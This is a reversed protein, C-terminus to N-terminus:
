PQKVLGTTTWLYDCKKDAAANTNYASIKDNMEDVEAQAIIYNGALHDLCGYIQSNAPDYSGFLGGNAGTATLSGGKTYCAVAIGSYLVGAIGGVYNAGEVTCNIAQCAILHSNEAYGVFAGAYDDITKIEAGQLTLNKIIASNTKGFFGAYGSSKNVKLGTITHGGGDFIGDYEIPTWDIGSLDIDCALTFPESFPAGAPTVNKSREAWALFRKREDTTEPDKVNEELNMTGGSLGSCDIQLHQGKYYSGPITPTGPDFAHWKDTGGPQGNIRFNLNHEEAYGAAYFTLTGNADATLTPITKTEGTGHININQIGWAHNNQDYPRFSVRDGAGLGTLTFCSSQHFFNDLKITDQPLAENYYSSLLLHNLSPDNESYEHVYCATVNIKAAEDPPIITNSFVWKGGSYLAMLNHNDVPSNDQRFYDVDIYIKDGDEWRGPNDNNWSARTGQFHPPAEPILLSIAKQQIHALPDAEKSCGPLLMALAISALTILTNFNTTTTRKM